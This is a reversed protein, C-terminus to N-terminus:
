AEDHEKGKIFEARKTEYTLMFELVEDATLDPAYVFDDYVNPPNYFCWFFVVEELGRCVYPRLDERVNLSIM